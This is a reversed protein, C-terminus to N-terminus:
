FITQFFIDVVFYEVVGRPMEKVVLISAGVQWSKTDRNRIAVANVVYYFDVQALKLNEGEWFYPVDGANMFWRNYEGTAGGGYKVQM